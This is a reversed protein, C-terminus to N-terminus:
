GQVILWDAVLAEAAEPTPDDFLGVAPAFM